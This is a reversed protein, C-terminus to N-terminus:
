EEPDKPAGGDFISLWEEWESQQRDWNELELYKFIRKECEGIYECLLRRYEQDGQESV